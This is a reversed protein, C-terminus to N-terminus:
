ICTLTNLKLSFILTNVHLQHTGPHKAKTKPAQTMHCCVGKQQNIDLSSTEHGIGPQSCHEGDALSEPLACCCVAKIIHSKDHGQAQTTGCVGARARRDATAQLPFRRCWSVEDVISNDCFEYCSSLGRHRPTQLLATCALEQSTILQAMTVQRHEAVQRCQLAAPQITLVAAAQTAAHKLPVCNRNNVYSLRSLTTSM